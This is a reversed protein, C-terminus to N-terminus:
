HSLCITVHEIPHVAQLLIENTSYTTHLSTAKQYIKMWPIIGKSAWFCIKLRLFEHSGCKLCLVM